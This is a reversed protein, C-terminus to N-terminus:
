FCDALRGLPLNASQKQRGDSWLDLNMGLFAGALM